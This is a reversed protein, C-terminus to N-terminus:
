DIVDYLLMVFILWNRIIWPKKHLTTDCALMRREYTHSLWDGCWSYPDVPGGIGVPVPVSIIVHSTRSFLSIDVLSKISMPKIEDMQDIHRWLVALISRNSLIWTRTKATWSFVFFFGWLDDVRTLWCMQHQALCMAGDIDFTRSILLVFSEYSRNTEESLVLCWVLVIKKEKKQPRNRFRLLPFTALRAHLTSRTIIFASFKNQRVCVCVDCVVRLLETNCGHLKYYMTSTKCSACRTGTENWKVTATTRSECNTHSQIQLMRCTPVSGVFRVRRSMWYCIFMSCRIGFDCVLLKERQEARGIAALVRIRTRSQSLLRRARSVSLVTVSEFDDDVYKWECSSVIKLNPSNCKAILQTHFSDRAWM